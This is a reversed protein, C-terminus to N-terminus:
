ERERRAALSIATKFDSKTQQLPSQMAVSLAIAAEHASRFNSVRESQLDQILDSQAKTREIFLLKVLGSNPVSLNQIQQRYQGLLHEYSAKM